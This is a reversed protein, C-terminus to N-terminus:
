QIDHKQINLSAPANEKKLLMIALVVAWLPFAGLMIREWVGLWPTPLNAQVDPAAMSTLAGFGLMAM